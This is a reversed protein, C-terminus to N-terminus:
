VLKLKLKTPKKSSTSTALKTEELVAQKVDNAPVTKPATAITIQSQPAAAPPVEAAITKTPAPAAPVEAAITKTPKNTNKMTQRHTNNARYAPKATQQPESMRHLEAIITIYKDNLEFRQGIVRVRIVNKEVVDNYYKNDIHHDRAVFIVLPSIEKDDGIVEARIGAKTINKVVCEILMGEVPLCVDCEFVVDFVLRNGQTIRGSSYNIVSVSHPKIFGEGICKGEIEHSIQKEIIEKLNSGINNIHLFVNKHIISHHYVDELKDQNRGRNM